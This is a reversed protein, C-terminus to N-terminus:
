TKQELAETFDVAFQAQANSLDNQLTTAAKSFSYSFTKMGSEVNDPQLLALKLAANAEVLHQQYALVAATVAQRLKAGADRVQEM